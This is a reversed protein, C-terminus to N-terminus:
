WSGYSVFIPRYEGNIRIAIVFDGRNIRLFTDRNTVQVKSGNSWSGAVKTKLTLNGVTPNNANQPPLITGDAYGEIFLASLDSSIQDIRNKETQLSANTSSLETELNFVDQQIKGSNISSGDSWLIKGTIKLDGIVELYNNSSTAYDFSDVLTANPNAHTRTVEIDNVVTSLISSSDSSYSLHGMIPDLSLNKNPSSNSVGETVNLVANKVYSDNILYTSSNKVVSKDKHVELVNDIMLLSSKYSPDFTASTIENGIIINNNLLDFSDGAKYGIYINDSVTGAVSAGAYSGISTNRDGTSIKSFSSFGLATNDNSTLINSRLEPSNNGVLTNRKADAYAFIDISEGGQSDISRLVFDFFNGSDDLFTPAATKSDQNIARLFIKGYSSDSAPLSPNIFMSIVSDSNSFSGLTFMENPESMHTFIGFTAKAPNALFLTNKVSNHYLDLNLTKDQNTYYLDVGYDLCNSMSLMQIGAKSASLNEATMRIISDGTSRVNLITDPILYEGRHFNNIGVFGDNGENMMIFSRSSYSKDKYSKLVLRDYSQGDSPNFFEPANLPDANIYSLEYGRIKNESYSSTNSLFRQHINTNNSPSLVSVTYDGANADSVFNINGSSSMSNILSQQGFSINNDEVFIGRGSMYNLVSIRSSNIIQDTKIHSGNTTELSINSTWHSRSYPNDQSLYSLSSDPPSFTFKYTRDYDAAIDKSNINFGAGFLEEDKLYGVPPEINDNPHYNETLSRAGGGDISNIYGSSALFITKHLYHAQEVAEFKNFFSKGTVNLNHVNVSLWSSGEDGLRYKLHTKPLINGDLRLDNGLELSGSVTANGEAHLNGSTSFNNVVDLSGSVSLDGHIDTASTVLFTNDISDYKIYNSEAFYITDSLYLDRFRYVNSGIDYSYNSDQNGHISGGVQLIAGDHLSSVGIGLRLNSADLDGFILPILGAGDENSCIYDTDVNHSAIFLKNSTDRQVYYGAGHGIAINLNGVKNNHLAYNGLTVNGYGTTNAAAANFGVAVNNHGHINCNLAYSGVATNAYGQYNKSLSAYGITTNDVSSYGNIGRRFNDLTVSGIRTTRSGQETDFNKSKLNSFHTLNHVSDIIDLLNHRIDSPTIQGTSNDNIERQINEILETKSIIM